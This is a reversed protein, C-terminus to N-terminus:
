CKKPGFPIDFGLIFFMEHMSREKNGVLPSPYQNVTAFSPLFFYIFYFRIMNKKSVAMRVMGKSKGVSRRTRHPCSFFCPFINGIKRNLFFMYHLRSFRKFDAM